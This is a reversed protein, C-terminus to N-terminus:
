SCNNKLFGTSFINVQIETIILAEKLDHIARQKKRSNSGDEFSMIIITIVM